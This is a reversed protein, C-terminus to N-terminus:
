HRAALRPVDCNKRGKEERVLDQKKNLHSHVAPRCQAEFEQPGDVSIISSLLVKHYKVKVQQTSLSVAM